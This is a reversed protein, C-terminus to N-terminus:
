ISLYAAKWGTKFQETKNYEVPTPNPKTIIVAGMFIIVFGMSQGLPQATWATWAYLTEPQHHSIYHVGDDAM